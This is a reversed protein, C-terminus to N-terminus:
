KFKRRTDVLPDGYGRQMDWKSGMWTRIRTIVGYSDLNILAKDKVPVGWFFIIDKKPASCQLGILKQLESKDRYNTSVTKQLEELSIMLLAESVLTEARLMVCPRAMGM